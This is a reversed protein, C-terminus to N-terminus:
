IFVFNFPDTEDDCQKRSRATAASEQLGAANGTTGEAHFLGRAIRLGPVAASVFFAGSV